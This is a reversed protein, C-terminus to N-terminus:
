EYDICVLHSNKLANKLFKVLDKQINSVTEIISDEKSEIKEINFQELEFIAQQLEEIRWESEDYWGDQNIYSELIGGIKVEGSISAGLLYEFYGIWIRFGEKDKEKFYIVVEPEGELGDYYKNNIM